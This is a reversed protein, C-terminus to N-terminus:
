PTYLSYTSTYQNLETAGLSQYFTQATHTGKSLNNVTAVESVNVWSGDSPSYGSWGNPNILNGDVYLLVWCQNGTTSGAGNEVLMHASLTCPATACTFVLKTDVPTLASAAVSESNLLGSHIYTNKLAHGKAAAAPEISDPESADALTGAAPALQAHHAAVAQSAGTLLAVVALASTITLERIPMKM